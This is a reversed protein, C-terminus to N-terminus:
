SERRAREPRLAGLGIAALVVAALASFAGIDFPPPAYDSLLAVGAVIVVWVRVLRARLAAIALLLIGVPVGIIVPVMLLPFVFGTMFAQHVGNAVAVDAQLANLVLISSGQYAVLGTAGAAGIWAAIRALTRGRSLLLGPARVFAAALLAGGILSLLHSPLLRDANALVFSAQTAADAGDPWPPSVLESIFILLPGSALLAVGPRSIRRNVETTAEAPPSSIATM